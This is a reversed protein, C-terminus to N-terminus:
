THAGECWLSALGRNRWEYRCRQAQAQRSNQHPQRHHSV